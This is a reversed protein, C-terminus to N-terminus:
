WKNEWHKTSPSFMCIWGENNLIKSCQNQKLIWPVHCDKNRNHYGLWLQIWKHTRTNKHENDDDYNLPQWLYKLQNWAILKYLEKLVIIKVDVGGHVYKWPQKKTTFSLTSTIGHYYNWNYHVCYFFLWIWILGLSM